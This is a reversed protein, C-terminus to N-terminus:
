ADEGQQKKRKADLLRQMAASRDTPSKDPPDEPPTADPEPQDSQPPTGIRGEVGRAKAVRETSDTSSVRGALTTEPAEVVERRFLSSWDLALRRVAVDLLFVVAALILAVDWVPLRAERFSLGDRTFLSETGTLVRGSTRRAVRELSAANDRLARFEEPYPMDIAGLLRDVSAEGPRRGAVSVFWSGENRLPFESRWRRPGVQRLKLSIREGQPGVAVAEFRRLLAAPNEDVAEIEVFAREGKRDTRMALNRSQGPRMAWRALQEWFRDYEPWNVWDNAWVRGADTTIAVSRGAGASWWAVLPDPEDEGTDLGAGLSATGGRTGTLVWGRVPPLSSLGDLPGGVLGRQMSPTVSVGEQILSRSIRRAERIFIAPLKNPDDVKFFRGGTAIATAEMAM